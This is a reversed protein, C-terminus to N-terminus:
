AYTRPVLSAKAHGAPACAIAVLLKGLAHAARTEELLLDGVGGVGAGCVGGPTNGM